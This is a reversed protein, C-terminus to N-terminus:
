QHCWVGFGQIIEGLLKLHEFAVGDVLAKKPVLYTHLWYIVMDGERLGCYYTRHVCNLFIIIILHTLILIIKTNCSHKVLCGTSVVTSSADQVDLLAKVQWANQESTLSYNSAVCEQGQSKHGLWLSM